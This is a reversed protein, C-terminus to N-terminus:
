IFINNNNLWIIDTEYIDILAPLWLLKNNLIKKINKYTM